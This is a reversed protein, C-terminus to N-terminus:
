VMGGDDDEDEDEFVDLPDEGDDKYATLLEMAEPLDDADLKTVRPADLKELIAQVIKKAKKKAATSGNNLFEGFAEAVETIDPGEKKKSTTKSTSKTGSTSKAPAKGGQAATNAKVAETLEKIAAELSM